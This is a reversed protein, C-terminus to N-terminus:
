DQIETLKCFTIQQVSCFVSKHHYAEISILGNLLGSCTSPYLNRSNKAACSIDGVDKLALRSPPSDSSEWSFPNGLSIVRCLRPPALNQLVLQSLTPLWCWFAPLFPMGTPQSVLCPLQFSSLPSILLM